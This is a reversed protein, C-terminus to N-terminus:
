RMWIMKILSMIKMWGGRELILISKTRGLKQGIKKIGILKLAKVLLGIQQSAHPVVLYRPINLSQTHRFSDGWVRVWLLRIKKILYHKTTRM